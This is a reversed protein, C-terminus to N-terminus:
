RTNGLSLEGATEFPVTKQMLNSGGLRVHGTLEYRLPQPHRQQTSSDQIISIVSSVMDLVSAYVTVPVIASGYPPIVHQEGVVGSAFDKGDIKLGCELGDIELPIDNPNLVRLEIQFATELTKIEHIQIDALTVRPNM